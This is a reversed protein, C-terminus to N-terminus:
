AGVIALVKRRIPALAGLALIGLTAWAASPLPVTTGGNQRFTNDVLTITATPNTGSLMELTQPTLAASHVAIDKTFSLDRTPTVDLFNSNHNLSSFNAGANFVSLTGISNGSLDTVTEAVSANTLLSTTNTANGDFSLGVGLIARSPDTVHVNYRIASDQNSGLSSTWNFQFELGIDSGPARIVNIQDPTVGTGIYSFNYFQKDGITIGTNGANILDQLTGLGSPVLGAGALSSGLALVTVAAIARFKM